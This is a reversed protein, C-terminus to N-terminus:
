PRSKSLQLEVFVGEIEPIPEYDWLSNLDPFESSQDIMETQLHTLAWEVESKSPVKRDKGMVVQSRCWTELIPDDYYYDSIEDCDGETTGASVVIFNLLPDVPSRGLWLSKNLKVITEIADSVNM